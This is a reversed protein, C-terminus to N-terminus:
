AAEGDPAIAGGVSPTGVGQLLEDVLYSILQQRSTCGSKRFIATMQSKVTPLSTNRLDAIEANSFGKMALLGVDKEAETLSWHVLIQGLHVEFQGAAVELQRTLHHVRSQSRKLFAISTLLGVVVGVSALVQMFEIWAWDIDETRLGLIDGWFVGLFVAASMAQVAVSGWLLTLGLKVRRDRTRDRVLATGTTPVGFPPTKFM